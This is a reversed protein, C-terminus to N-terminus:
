PPQEVARLGAIPTLMEEWLRSPVAVEALQFIISCAHLVLKASIKILKVRSEGSPEEWNGVPRSDPEASARYATTPEKDLQNSSSCGPGMVMKCQSPASRGACCM